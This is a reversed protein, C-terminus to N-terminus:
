YATKLLRFYKFFYYNIAINGFIWIILGLGPNPIGAILFIAMWIVSFKKISRKLDSFSPEETFIVPLLGFAGGWFSFMAIQGYFAVGANGLLFWEIALGFMGLLIYWIIVNLRKRKIIRNYIKRVFYLIVLFIIYSKITSTFGSLSQKVYIQNVVEPAGSFVLGVFIFKLFRKM